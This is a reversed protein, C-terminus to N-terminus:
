LSMLRYVIYVLVYCAAGMLAGNIVGAASDLRHGQPAERERNRLANSVDRADLVATDTGAFVESENRNSDKM